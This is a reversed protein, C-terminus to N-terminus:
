RKQKPTDGVWACIYYRTVDLNPDYYLYKNRALITSAVRPAATSRETVPGKSQRSEYSKHLFFYGTVTELTGNIEAGLNM